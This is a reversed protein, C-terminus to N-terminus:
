KIWRYIKCTYFFVRKSLHYVFYEIRKPIQVIQKIESFSVDTCYCFRNMTDVAKNVHSLNYSDVIKKAINIQEFFYDRKLYLLLEQKLELSLKYNVIDDLLLRMVKLIQLHSMNFESHMMSDKRLTCNFANIPLSCVSKAHLLARMIFYFDEGQNVGKVNWIDNDRVMKLNYVANGQCIWIEKKIKKLAALPGAIPHSLFSYNYESLINGTEDEIDKWGYFCIDFSGEINSIEEFIGLDLFDDADLNCFYDGSAYSLGVNRANALGGNPINVLKIFVHCYQNIIEEVIDKTNDTSGDNVVVIEIDRYTQNIVSLLCREIYKGANYAPIIISIKM